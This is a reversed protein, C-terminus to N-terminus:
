DSERVAERVKLLVSPSVSLEDIGMDMLTQTMTTDAAMEGCIGVRIGAAHAHDITTQVARLVAPNKPDCLEGLRANQRDAALIYQILDNTGICFFDVERALLDSLLVSAPTEIMIGTEVDAFPKGAECLETKALELQRKCKRIEEVSVIMPFMVSVTGSLGARLIARLQTRFMEPRDLCVRIGRYGIFSNDEEPLAFYPAQKDAGVDLTRIIVKKGKMDRAVSSYIAYQEDETPWTQAQLYLFESRFLGIGEADNALAAEVDGADEINAYLNIKRGNKTVTDQGRLSRLKENREEVEQQKKRMRALCDEDPDLIVMGECGDVVCMRGDWDESVDIGLIAPINMSRALIATHSNASGRRVVFALIGSRDFGMTESPTLEDAVLISPEKPGETETASELLKLLRESVDSVDSAREQMYEDDTEMLMRVFHARADAVAYEANVRQEQILDYVYDRYMPDRVLMRHGEFVEAEEEGIDRKTRRILDDLESEAEARAQDFRTIERSVDTVEEKYPTDVSKKYFYIKGIVIKELVSTGQYKEM